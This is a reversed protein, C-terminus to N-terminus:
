YKEQHGMLRMLIEMCTMQCGEWSTWYFWSVCTLPLSSCPLLGWLGSNSEKVKGHRSCPFSFLSVFSVLKYTFYACFSHICGLHILYGLDQVNSWSLLVAHSDSSTLPLPFPPIVCFLNKKIMSVELYVKQLRFYGSRNVHMWVCQLNTYWYQEDPLSVTNNHILPRM